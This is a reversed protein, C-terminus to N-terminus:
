ASDILRDMERHHNTITIEQRDSFAVMSIGRSHLGRQVRGVNSIDQQPILRFGDPDTPDTVETIKWEPAEEGEPYTSLAFVEFLCADPNNDPMPRARYMVCNGFYPLFVVHPFINMDTVQRMAEVTGIARGEAAYHERIVRELEDGITSGDPVPRNRMSRAIEMDGETIMADLGEANAGLGKMMAQFQTEHTCSGAAPASGRGESMTQGPVTRFIGHGNPFTKYEYIRAFAEADPFATALQPHTVPVHYAEMFAELAVKWNCPAVITRHWRFRMESLRIGDVLEQIPAIHQEFPVPDPDFTIWVSGGWLETRVEKLAVDQATLCGAKFEQRDPLYINDGLTNWKWGHFPCTFTADALQGAGVALATARHPCVNHYAKISMDVARVLVVSDDLIEYVYYDGPRRLQDIRAAMQWCKGWIHERELEAFEHSTYRATPVANPQARWERPLKSAAFAPEIM